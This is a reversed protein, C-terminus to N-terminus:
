NRKPTTKPFAFPTSADSKKTHVKHDGAEMDIVGHELPGNYLKKENQSIWVLIEAVIDFFENPIPANVEADAYLSRALQVHRFIPVGAREAKERLFHAKLNRGKAVIIPLPFQEPKYRFVISFHTPNVVVGSASETAAGEDGLLLEQALQKRHGKIHPDGESEKYEKKVEEKTMMLSKHHVHREYVYDFGSVIGFALASYLFTQRLMEQTVLSMCDMGCPLANIYAGVAEKVVYYLLLSLFIIKLISKLTQVVQKMAFIRKFGAAPSIKDMKPQISEFAFLIGFQGLNSIVGIAFAVALIPSLILITDWLVAVGAQYVAAHFDLTAFVAIQDMMGILRDITLNWTFWIYAIVAFLSLTTVVEQSRAVQGKQRSDREKKPTPEETKEGSDQSM